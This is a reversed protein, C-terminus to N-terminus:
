LNLSLSKNFVQQLNSVLAHHFTAFILLDSLLMSYGEVYRDVTDTVRAAQKMIKQRNHVQPKDCLTKELRLLGVPLEVQDLTGSYVIDSIDKMLNHM